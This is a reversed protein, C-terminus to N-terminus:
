CSRFKQLQLERMRRKYGRGQRASHGQRMRSQLTKMKRVIADCQDRSLKAKEAAVAPALLMALAILQRRNM